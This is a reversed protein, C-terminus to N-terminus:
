RRLRRLACCGLLALVCATPEPIDSVSFSRSYGGAGTVDITRQGGSVASIAVDISALGAQLEPLFIPAIYNTSNNFSPGYHIELEGLLQPPANTVRPLWLHDDVVLVWDGAADVARGEYFVPSGGAWTLDMELYDAPVTPPGPSVILAARATSAVALAALCLAARM